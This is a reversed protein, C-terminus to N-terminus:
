EARGLISDLQLIREGTPSYPSKMKKGLSILLHIDEKSIKSFRYAGWRNRDISTWVEGLAEKLIKLDASSVSSWNTGMGHRIKDLAEEVAKEKQVQFLRRGLNDDTTDSMSCLKHSIYPEKNINNERVGPFKWINNKSFTYLVIEVFYISLSHSQKM